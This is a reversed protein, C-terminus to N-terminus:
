ESKSFLYSAKVYLYGGMVDYRNIRIDNDSFNNTAYENGNINLLDYGGIGLKIQKGHTREIEFSVVNQQNEGRLASYKGSVEFYYKPAKYSVRLAPSTRLATYELASSQFYQRSYNMEVRPSFSLKHDLMDFLYHLRAQYLNTEGGQLANDADITKGMIHLLTGSLMIKSKNKLSYSGFFNLGIRTNGPLMIGEMVQYGEMYKPRFYVVSDVKSYYVYAFAIVPISPRHYKLRLGFNNSALDSFAGVENIEYNRNDSVWPIPRRELPSVFDRSYSYSLNAELNYLIDYKLSARIYPANRQRIEDFVSVSHDLSFANKLGVKVEAKYSGNTYSAEAVPTTEFVKFKQLRNFRSSFFPNDSRNKGTYWTANAGLAWSLKDYKKYLRLANFWRKDSRRQDSEFYYRDQSVVEAEGFVDYGDLIDQDATEEGFTLNNHYDIRFDNGLDYELSTSFYIDTMSQNNGFSYPRQESQFYSQGSADDSLRTHDLGGYFKLAMKDKELVHSFNLMIEEKGLTRAAQGEGVLDNEFVSFVFEESNEKRNSELYRVFINTASQNKKKNLNVQALTEKKQLFSTPAFDESNLDVANTFDYKKRLFLYDFDASRLFDESSIVPQAWNNKQIKVVGSWKHDSRLSLYGAGVDYLGNHAVSLAANYKQKRPKDLVLNLMLPKSEDKANIVEAGVVEEPHFLDNLMNFQSQIINRNNLLIKDVKRGNYRIGGDESVQVGPLKEILAKVDNETGSRLSELDFSVTDGRIVVDPRKSQVLVEHLSVKEEKLIITQRGQEWESRATMVRQVGYSLHSLYLVISDHFSREFEFVGQENSLEFFLLAGGDRDYGEVSVDAIPMSDKSLLQVTVRDQARLDAKFACLMLSVCLAAYFSYTGSTVLIYLLVRAKM